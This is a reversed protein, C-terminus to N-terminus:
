DDLTNILRHLQFLNYGIVIIMLFYVIIGVDILFNIEKDTMTPRGYRFLKAWAAPGAITNSALPILRGAGNLWFLIAKPM